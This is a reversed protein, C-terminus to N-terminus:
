FATRFGLFLAYGTLASKQAKWQQDWGELGTSLFLAEKRSIYYLFRTDLNYWGFSKAGDLESDIFFLQRSYSGTLQLATKEALPVQYGVFLLPGLSTSNKVFIDENFRDGLFAPLRLYNLGGGYYLNGRALKRETMLSASGRIKNGAEPGSSLQLYSLEYKRKLSNLKPKSIWELNLGATTLKKQNLQTDTKENTSEYSYKGLTLALSIDDKWSIESAHIEDVEKKGGQIIDQLEVSNGSKELQLVTAPSDPYGAAVARISITTVGESLKAASFAFATTAIKFKKPKGNEAEPRYDIEYAKASRVKGWDIRVKQGIKLKVAPSELEGGVRTFNRFSATTFEEQTRQKEGAELAYVAWSYTGLDELYVNARTDKEIGNHVIRESENKVVIQYSDAGEEQSWEFDVQGSAVKANSGPLLLKPNHMRVKLPFSETWEGPVGRKDLSRLRLSYKGPPVASSWSPTDVKYKGRPKLNAGEGEFLEVEFQSAGPVEEWEIDIWRSDQAFASLSSLTLFIFLIFKM